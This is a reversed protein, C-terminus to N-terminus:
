FTTGVAFRFQFAKQPLLQNNLVGGRQPNYAFILRFPVNLVPMFFRIEAGTSTKFASRQGITEFQTTRSPDSLSVLALPDTLPPIPLPVIRVVDEKWAFSQGVDRVQAADYFLILRVPGAITIIQEVNFLLSKNGGLVLGTTLDQPGITRLDFGRVSYEGGLFLKEFIPLERSDGLSSIYESQGRFGLSMRGNERLFAVAEISPKLFKTNGGLGAVDMSLTLRRGTTPFIPQDVSNYVLSPTVRSIIREGNAGILLSDRLFPNRALLVPDTFAQNIETVRVREYRYNAFMRTFGNGVPFGFTLVGGTSKQTFQSIYRVDSKFLNLGGTINRDFLFPETFAATYNQARSGGQLSVTLNEGRGLFNATQFSLQGFFGEFQSVGAGFTLQNRNQEELKMRVDVKTEANPTKDINVDKGPGELPKFYGLQNLRKISYKLAETNFVGNEYLRLERRIVNDRTTTNGTFIIRNVFYQKGEQIQLTVNVTPAATGKETSEKPRAPTPAPTPAATRSQPDVPNPDDSFKYDPYGTFEM